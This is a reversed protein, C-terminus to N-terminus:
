KVNSLNLASPLPGLLLAFSHLHTLLPPVISDMEDPPLSRLATAIASLATTIDSAEKLEASVGVISVM